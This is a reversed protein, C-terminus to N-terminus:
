KKTFYMASWADKQVTYEHKINYENM